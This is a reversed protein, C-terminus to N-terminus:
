DAATERSCSSRLPRRSLGCGAASLVRTQVRAGGSDGALDTAEFRDEGRHVPRVFPVARRDTGRVVVFQGLFALSRRVSARSIAKILAGNLPLTFPVQGTILGVM